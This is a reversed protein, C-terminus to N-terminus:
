SRPPAQSRALAPRDPRAGARPTLQLLSGTGQFRPHVATDGPAHGAGRTSARMPGVMEGEGGEPCVEDPECGGGGGDGGDGGDGGGGDGGGGLGVCWSGQCTEDFGCDSDSCCQNSCACSGSQCAEDPSCDTNSCCESTCVCSNNQCAQGSACDDNSCCEAPCAACTQTQPIDLKV